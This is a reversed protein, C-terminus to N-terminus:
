INLICGKLAILTDAYSEHEIYYKSISKISDINIYEGYEIVNDFKITILNDSLHLLGTEIIQNSSILLPQEISKLESVILSNMLNQITTLKDMDSSNLVNTLDLEFKGNNYSKSGFEKIIFEKLPGEELILESARAEVDYFVMELEISIERAIKCSLSYYNSYLFVINSKM